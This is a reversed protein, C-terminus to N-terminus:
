CTIGFKKEKAYEMLLSFNKKDIIPRYIGFEECILDLNASDFDISPCTIYSSFIKGVTKYYFDELRNKDEPTKDVMRVGKIGIAKLMEFFYFNHSTESKSVLHYSEESNSMISILYTLKAVFDVPVINLGSDGSATFRLDLDLSGEVSGLAKMKAKLFFIAWGYFVDFKSTAGLRGEMLRGCITSPRLVNLAVGSKKAFDRVMLEAEFKTKEYPNRFNADKNLYYPAIKGSNIGCVYASSIYSFKKLKMKSALEILRETGSVNTKRLEEEILSGYRFDTLSAVHFFVDIEEKFVLDKFEERVKIESGDLSYEICKICNNMLVDIISSHCDRNGMYDLLEEELIRKVRLFLSESKSPRGIVVLVLKELSNRHNKIIEFMLNRGLLGTVGTLVFRVKDNQNLLTEM